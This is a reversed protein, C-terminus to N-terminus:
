GGGEAFWRRTEEVADLDGAAEAQEEGTLEIADLEELRGRIVEPDEGVATGLEVLVALMRAREVAPADAGHRKFGSKARRYAHADDTKYERLIRVEDLSRGLGELEPSGGYELEEPEDRQIFLLSNGNPDVLTFRSSGTRFRTIRPVGRALVKGRAARMGAVFEAHYAAVDDVMVLAIGGEEKAPDTGKPADVFHVHLGSWGLAMYFYPRRQDHEVRFGLMRYFDVTADADVCGLVPVVAENARVGVGEGSEAKKETM